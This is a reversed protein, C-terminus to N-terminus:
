SFEVKKKYDNEWYTEIGLSTMEVPWISLRNGTLDLKKLNHLQAMKIPWVNLQNFSLDLQQLDHLQSMAVPWTLSNRSLNLHQLNQLQVMAVPWTNLQNGSLDLYQLHKLQAIELPVEQLALLHLRLKIVQERDNLEYQTDYTEFWNIEECFQVKFKRGLRKELKEIIALDNSM